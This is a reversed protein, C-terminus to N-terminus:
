WNSKSKHKKRFITPSVGFYNRFKSSFFKNEYIGCKMAIDTVSLETNELLAAAKRMRMETVTKWVSQGKSASYRYSLTRVPVDMHRAIEDLTLQHHLNSSIFEDVRSIFMRPTLKGPKRRKETNKPPATMAAKGWIVIIHSLLSSLAVQSCHERQELENVLLDFAAYYYPNLHLVGAPLSLLSDMLQDEYTTESEDNKSLLLWWVHMTLESQPASWSHPSGPATVTFMGPKFIKVGTPTHLQGHGSYPVHVELFRHSHMSKLKQPLLIWHVDLLSVTYGGILVNSIKRSLSPLFEAQKSIEEDSYTPINYEM